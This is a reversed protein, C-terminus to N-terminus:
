QNEDRPNNPPLGLPLEGAAAKDRLKRLLAADSHIDVRYDSTLRNEIVAVADQPFVLPGYMAGIVAGVIQAYSDTDHGWELSLQLAALPDQDALLLCAIAVTFPVQAEWKITASFEKELNAFLRAPRKNASKVMSEAREIWHTAPRTVWPVQGYRYPDTSKMSNLFVQILSRHETPRTQDAILASLGVVLCANLDKGIGNDFWGLHYTTKYAEDLMASPFLAALPLLAMQGSCTAKGGWLRSPPLAQDMQIGAVWRAGTWWESLWAQNLLAYDPHTAFLKSSPWDLMATAYAKPTLAVPFDKALCERLWEILIFKHRSDDTVTGAPADPKWHGYPEPQPRLPNYPRLRLRNRTKKLAGQTLKEDDTWTKPPHPLSAIDAKSQFEIPGGLADGLYSGLLM